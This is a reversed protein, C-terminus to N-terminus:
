ALPLRATRSQRTAARLAAIVASATPNVTDTHRTAVFLLRHIPRDEILSTRIGATTPDSAMQPVLATALGARAPTLRAAIDTTVYPTSPTFGAQHCAHLIAQGCDTDPPPV